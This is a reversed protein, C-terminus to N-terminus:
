GIQVTDVSHLETVEGLFDAIESQMGTLHLHEHKEAVVFSEGLRFQGLFESEFRWRNGDHEPAEFVCAKDDPLLLFMVSPDLSHMKRFLGLLQGALEFANGAFDFLRHQRTKGLFFGM